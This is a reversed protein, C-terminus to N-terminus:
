KEDTKMITGQKEIGENDEEKKKKKKKGGEKM